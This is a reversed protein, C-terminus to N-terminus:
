VCLPDTLSVTQDNMASVAVCGLHSSLMAGYASMASLAKLSIVCCSLHQAAWSVSATRPHHMLGERVQTNGGFQDSFRDTDRYQEAVLGAELDKTRQEEALASQRRRLNRRRICCCALLCAALAVVIPVAIAAALVGPSLGTPLSTHFLLWLM